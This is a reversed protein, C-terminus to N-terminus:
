FTKYEQPLIRVHKREQLTILISLLATMLSWNKLSGAQAIDQAQSDCKM